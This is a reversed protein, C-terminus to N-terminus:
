RVLREETTTERNLESLDIGATFVNKEVTSAFVVGFVKPDAELAEFAELLEEWLELNMANVPPRDLMMVGYNGKLATRVLGRKMVCEPM